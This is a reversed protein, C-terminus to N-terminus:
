GVIDVDTARVFAIRHNFTIQYFREGSSVV